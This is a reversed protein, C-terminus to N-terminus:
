FASLNVINNNHGKTTTGKPLGITGIMGGSLSGVQVEQKWGDKSAGKEDENLITSHAVSWAGRRTLLQRREVSDKQPIWGERVRPLTAPRRPALVVMWNRKRTPGKKAPDRRRPQATWGCRHLGHQCGFVVVVVVVVISVMVVLKKKRWLDVDSSTRTATTAGEM